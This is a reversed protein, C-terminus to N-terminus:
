RSCDMRLKGRQPMLKWKSMDSSWTFRCSLVNDKVPMNIIKARTIEPLIGTTEATSETPNFSPPPLPNKHCHAKPGNRGLKSIRELILSEEPLPSLLALAYYPM